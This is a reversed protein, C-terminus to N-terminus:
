ILSVHLVCSANARVHEVSKMDNFNVPFLATIFQSSSVNAGEWEGKAIDVLDSPNDAFEEPKWNSRSIHLERKAKEASTSERLSCMEDLESASM